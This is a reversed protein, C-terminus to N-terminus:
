QRVELGAAACARTLVGDRAQYRKGRIDKITVSSAARDTMYDDVVVDVSPEKGALQSRVNGAVQEAVGRVMVAVEAAKLLDAMGDHDLKVDKRAM